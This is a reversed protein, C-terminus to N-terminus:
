PYTVHIHTTNSSECGSITGSNNECQVRTSSPNLGRMENRLQLYNDTTRVRPVLDVAKGTYHASLSAHDGTAISSVVFKINKDALTALDALMKPDATTGHRECASGNTSCGHSCITIAQGNQLEEFNTQASVGDCSSSVSFPVDKFALFAANSKNKQFDDTGPTPPPPLTVPTTTPPPKPPPPFVAPAPEKCKLVNWPGLSIGTDAQPLQAPGSTDIKNSALKIITDIALWACFVIAIGIFTNKMIKKGKEYSGTNGNVAGGVLLFGAWMLMLAAIPASIDWYIFNLIRQSLTFISCVSCPNTVTSEGTTKDTELTNECPVLPDAAHTLFPVILFFLTVALFVGASIERIKYTARMAEQKCVSDRDLAIM